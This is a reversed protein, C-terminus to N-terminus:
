AAKKLAKGINIRLDSINLPKPLYSFYYAEAFKLESNEYCSVLIIPIDFKLGKVVYALEIGNLGPMRIDSIILDPNKTKILELATLGNNAEFVEYGLEDLYTTLSERTSEDDDIVLIKNM